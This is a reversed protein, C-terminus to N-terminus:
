GEKSARRRGVWKGFEVAFFVITSAALAIALDRGNLPETGFIKQLFPVYLLAMQLVVTLAIAGIMLKNAFIGVRFVSQTTARIALANGMQGLVLTTFVMTRWVGDPNANYYVAGVVLSVLGMLVGVWAIQQWVGHAFISDQSDFPKREMIGPEKDEIALALGPLGDTVLNIWLIQLPLLPLPMGLFPAIFMVLLEGTNSSLTYKVFKVINDYITRGEEVAAVITAFNDDLLVMDSAEKSVDTGTIGMAVGINARRLAPADNVGDGTMAVVEGKTQLADVINLKHEPSVRAYVDVESVVSMLEAPTMQSLERGTLVRGNEEAIGLETAIYHATLPHDGTIMIPRIGARRAVAVAAKVEPRPPDIMGVLGIMIHEQEAPDDADDLPKFSVGLVRQGQNALRDHGVRVRAKMEDDLPLLEGGVGTWIRDCIDFISDMAGKAFAAHTRSLDLLGITEERDTIEHITVMRKTESSFPIERVRPLDAKLEDLNRGFQQAAVILAGETPDGIVHMHGTEDSEFIADNCLAAAKILLSIARDEPPQAADFEADMMIGKSSLLTDVTEAHGVVDLTTVTMRNQTLTGTKDSCITSVSGLTEVAPLKRILARRKLMRQSGLALTITVVAALGEPVAAVAMSVGTLFLEELTHLLEADPDRTVFGIAVIILVIGLAVWALLVGLRGLRQQLPTLEEDVSQLLHAIHGLETGMGTEVVVATGRGYTVATGMFLMNTRDGVTLNAEALGEVHKEVAESEGTLASEQVKLNVSEVVRCDAPITNGTELIIVDGVVLDPASIDQLRGDRRVHVTPVSMKKLAAIAQEARYEQSFGIAANLIVILLIVTVDIFEGLLGSVIAAIILVIVMPEKMQDLIIDFPKRKEGEVLENKGNQILRGNADATTLGTEVSTKITELTQPVDLQHWITM